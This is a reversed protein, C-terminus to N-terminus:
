HTLLEGWFPITQYGPFREHVRARIERELEQNSARYLPNTSAQELGLPGAFEFLFYDRLNAAYVVIDSQWVSFVPNDAACPEALLYRHGFVPILRPAGEVLEHVRAEQAALTDPQPGWSPRWLGNHEVDFQLGEWLRAWRGELADGDTLWNYFGSGAELVMYQDFEEVCATALAGHAEATQPSEDEGLYSARLTPRDASHLRQLFLRYDPPFALRWRREVQAIEEDSLGTLWRTGSQWESGGAGAQVYGALAEEPTRQPLAAWYAELRARFWDLFDDDFRPTIHQSRSAM